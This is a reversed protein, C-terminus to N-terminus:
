LQSTRSLNVGLETVPSGFETRSIARTFRLHDRCVLWLCVAFFVWFILNTGVSFWQFWSSSFPGLNVSPGTGSSSQKTPSSPVLIPDTFTSNAILIQIRTLDVSLDPVASLIEEEEQLSPYAYETLEVTSNSNVNLLHTRNIRVSSSCVEAENRLESEKTLRYSKGGLYAVLCGSVVDISDPVVSYCQHRKLYGNSYREGAGLDFISRQVLPDLGVATQLMVNKLRCFLYDFKYGYLAFEANLFFEFYAQQSSSPIGTSSSGAAGSSTPRVRILTDGFVGWSEGGVDKIVGDFVVKRKMSTSIAYSWDPSPYYLESTISKSLDFNNSFMISEKFTGGLYFTKGTTTSGGYSYEGIRNVFVVESRKFLVTNERDVFGWTWTECKPPPYQGSVECNMCGSDSICEDYSFSLVEYRTVIEDAAAWRQKCATVLKLRFCRTAKVTTLSHFDKITDVTLNKVLGSQNLAPTYIESCPLGLGDLKVATVPKSYDCVRVPTTM